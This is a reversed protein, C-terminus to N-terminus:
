AVNMTMIMVVEALLLPFCWWRSEEQWATLQKLLNEIWFAFTKSLWLSKTFPSLHSPSIEAKFELLQSGQRRQRLHTSRPVSEGTLRGQRNKQEKLLLGSSSTVSTRHLSFDSERWWCADPLITPYWNSPQTLIIYSFKVTHSTRHRYSQTPM